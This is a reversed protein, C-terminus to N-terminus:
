KQCNECFFTSRSGLVIKKIQGGCHVCPEGDRQYVKLFHQNEGPQGNPTRFVSYTTGFKEIASHLVFDIAQRLAPIETENVENAKRLPSIKARFLIESAYINGIGAIISQDLLFAKMNMQRNELLNQLAPSTLKTITPDIGLQPLQPYERYLWIKGFKRADQFFLQKGSEFHLEVHIHQPYASETKDKLFIGSM